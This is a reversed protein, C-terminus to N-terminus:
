SGTVLSSKQIYCVHNNGCKVVPPGLSRVNVWQESNLNTSLASKSVQGNIMNTTQLVSGNYEPTSLAVADEINFEWSNNANYCQVTKVQYTQDPNVIDFGTTTKKTTMDYNACIGTATNISTQVNNDTLYDVEQPGASGKASAFIQSYGSGLVPFPMKNLQTLSQEQSGTFTPLKPIKFTETHVKIDSKHQEYISFISIGAVIIIVLTFIVGLKTRKQKERYM